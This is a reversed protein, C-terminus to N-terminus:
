DARLNAQRVVKEWLRLEAQIFSGFEAPTTGRVEAGLVSIRERVEPLQLVASVERHLREIIAKSTGARVLIGQWEYVEFDRVGSEMVTPVDPLASSRKNSSLGLARLKGSQVHAIAPPVTLFIAQIHGAVLDIVAPGGGKYPVHLIDTGTSVKFLEM